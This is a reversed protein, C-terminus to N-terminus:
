RFLSGGILWGVIAALAILEVFLSRNLWLALRPMHYGCYCRM